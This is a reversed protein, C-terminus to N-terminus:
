YGRSRDLLPSPDQGNRIRTINDVVLESSTELRTRGAIHPTLVVAPHSWLPSDAAPPEPDTVDLVAAGLPGDDLAEILADEDLVTGRGLNVLVSGPRMAALRDGTLLGTTEPTSPLVNVVADVSGLFDDLQETGAYHTVGPESPGSRSWGSVRYDLERFAHGITAGITGYGLIGVDYDWAPTSPPESWEGRRQQAIIEAFRRQHRMVWHVAYGAMEKSMAPDALRVVPVDPMGESQWQEAGASLSLVAQLNVFEQMAARPLRWAIVFEVESPEGTEPWLLLDDDPLMPGLRDLWAEPESYPNLVITM